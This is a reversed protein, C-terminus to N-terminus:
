ELVAFVFIHRVFQIDLPSCVRQVVGEVQIEFLARNFRGQLARPQERGSQRVATHVGDGVVLRERLAGDLAHELDHQGAPHLVLAALPHELHPQRGLAPDPPQDLGDNGPEAANRRVRGLQVFKAVALPSDLKEASKNFLYFNVQNPLIESIHILM